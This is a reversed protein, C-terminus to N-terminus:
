TSCHPGGPQRGVKNPTWGGIGRLRLQQEVLVYTRLSELTVKGLFSAPEKPVIRGAVVGAKLKLMTFSKRRIGRERRDVQEALVVGADVQKEMATIEVTIAVPRAANTKAATPQRELLKENMLVLYDKTARGRVRTQETVKPAIRRERVAVTGATVYQNAHRSAGALSVATDYRDQQVVERGMQAARTAEPRANPKGKICIAAGKVNREAEIQHHPAGYGYGYILLEMHQAQAETLASVDGKARVWARLAADKIPWGHAASPVMDATMQTLLQGLEYKRPAVSEDLSDRVAIEM